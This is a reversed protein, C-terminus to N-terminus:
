GPDTIVRRQDLQFQPRGKDNHRSVLPCGLSRKLIGAAPSAMYAATATARSPPIPTDKAAITLEATTDSGGTLTLDGKSARMSLARSTLNASAFGKGAGSGSGGIVALTWLGAGFTAARGVVLGLSARAM